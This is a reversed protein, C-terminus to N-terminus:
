RDGASASGPHGTQINEFGDTREGLGKFDPQLM